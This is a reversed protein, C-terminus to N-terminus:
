AGIQEFKAFKKACMYAWEVQAQEFTQVDKVGYDIASLQAVLFGGHEREYIHGEVQDRANRFTALLKM